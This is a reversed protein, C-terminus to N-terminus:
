NSRDDGFLARFIHSTGTFKTQVSQDKTSINTSSAGSLNISSADKSENPEPDKELLSRPFNRITSQLLELERQLEVAGPVSGPSFTEMPGHAAEQPKAVGPISGPSLTQAEEEPHAQDAFRCPPCFSAHLAQQLEGIEDSNQSTNSNSEESDSEDIMMKQLFM